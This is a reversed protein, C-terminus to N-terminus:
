KILPLKEKYRFNFCNDVIYKSTLNKCFGCVLLCSLILTNFLILITKTLHILDLILQLILWIWVVKAGVIM